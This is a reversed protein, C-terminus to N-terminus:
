TSVVPPAARGLGAWGGALGGSGYGEANLLLIDAHLLPLAVTVAYHSPGSPGLEAAAFALTGHKM